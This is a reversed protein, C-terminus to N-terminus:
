RIVAGSAKISFMTGFKPHEAPCGDTGTGGGKDEEDGADIKEVGGEAPPKKAETKIPWLGGATTWRSSSRRSQSTPWAALAMWCGMETCVGTVVGDIQVRKGVFKGPSAYLEEIATADKITVRRALKEGAVAGVSSRLFPLHGALGSISSSQPRM